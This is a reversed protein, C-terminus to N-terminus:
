SEGPPKGDAKLRWWHRLCDYGSPEVIGNVLFTARIQAQAVVPPFGSTRMVDQELWECPHFSGYRFLTGGAAVAILAVVILLYKM